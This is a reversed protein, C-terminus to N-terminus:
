RLCTWWRGAMTILQPYQPSTPITVLVCKLFIKFFWPMSDNLVRSPMFPNWIAIEREWVWIIMALSLSCKLVVVIMSFISFSINCCFSLWSKSRPMNSTSCYPRLKNSFFKWDICGPSFYILGCNFAWIPTRSFYSRKNSAKSSISSRLPTIRWFLSSIITVSLVRSVSLLLACKIWRKGSLCACKLKNSAASVWKFSMKVPLIM